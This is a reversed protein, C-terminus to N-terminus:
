DTRPDFSSSFAFASRWCVLSRRQFILRWCRWRAFVGLHFVLLITPASTKSRRIARRYHQPLAYAWINRWHATHLSGMGRVLVLKTTTKFAQSGISVFRFLYPSTFFSFDHHVFAFDHLDKQNNRTELIHRLRDIGELM